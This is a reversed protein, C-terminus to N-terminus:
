VGALEKIAKNCEDRLEILESLTIYSLMEGEWGSAGTEVARKILGDLGQIEMWFEAVKTRDSADVRITLPKSNYGDKIIM